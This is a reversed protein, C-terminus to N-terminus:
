IRRRSFVRCRTRGNTTPSCIKPPRIRHAVRAPPHLFYAWGTENGRGVRGRLQYLQALGFRDPRWVLLTNARPIDLGSEIIDTSLLIDYDGRLFAVMTEELERASVGGHLQCFSLEPVLRELDDRLTELDRVQPVVVFSQGGRRKERLLAERVGASDWTGIFTRVATRMPPPTSILSMDTIGHLAQQLTRPIPTASLTLVHPAKTLETNEKQRGEQKSHNKARESPPLRLGKLREKQKVGFRQEEDIVLLGLDSFAIRESLLAHTGVAIDIKGDQLLARSEKQQSEPVLRSFQAVRFPLGAFREKFNRYHQHALM